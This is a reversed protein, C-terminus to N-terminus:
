QWRTDDCSCNVFIDYWIISSVVSSVTDVTFYTHYPFLSTLILQIIKSSLECIVMSSPLKDCTKITPLLTPCVTHWPLTSNYQSGVWNAQKGKVEGGVRRRTGNCLARVRGGNPLVYNRGNCAQLWLCYPKKFYQYHVAIDCLPTVCFLAAQMKVARPVKPRMYHTSLHLFICKITPIKTTTNHYNNIYVHRKKENNVASSLGLGWFRAINVFRTCRKESSIRWSINEWSTYMHVSMDRPSRFVPPGAVAAAWWGLLLLGAVGASLLPTALLEPICSSSPDKNGPM